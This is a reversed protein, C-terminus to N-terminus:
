KSDQWLAYMAVVWIREDPRFWNGDGGQVFYEYIGNQRERKISTRRGNRDIAEVVQAGRSFRRRLAQSAKEYLLEDMLLQYAKKDLPDATDLSQKKLYDLAKAFYTIM